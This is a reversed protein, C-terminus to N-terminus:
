LDEPRLFYLFTFGLRMRAQLTRGEAFESVLGDYAVRGNTGLITAWQGDTLIAKIVAARVANVATGVDAPQGGLLIHVEPTMEVRRHAM